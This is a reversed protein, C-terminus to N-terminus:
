EEREKLNDGTYDPMSPPSQLFVVHNQDRFLEQLKQVETAYQKPTKHTFAKFDHILHAQDSYAFEYALDTLNADPEFMLRNRVGEFRITRALTKPTVGTAGELQRELQRVSLNLADALETVRFQGKTHYLLRAALKVQRPDFLSNLRKSILFDEMEEIAKQYEGAHVRAAIKSVAQRWAVDLAIEMTGDRRAEGQFFPLAGWSFFRVAVIKVVGEAQLILPKSLLGILCVDPLRRPPNGGPQLYASGFNLILEISADPIVEELSDEPTYEKELIWFRKVDDQLVTHPIFEQYQKIPM